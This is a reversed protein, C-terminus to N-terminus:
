RDDNWNAKHNYCVVEEDQAPSIFTGTVFFYNAVVMFCIPIIIPWVLTWTGALGCLLYESDLLETFTLRDSCGPISENKVFKFYLWYASMVTLAVSQCAPLMSM